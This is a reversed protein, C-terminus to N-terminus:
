KVVSSVGNRAVREGAPGRTQTRDPPASKSQCLWSLTAVRIRMGRVFRKGGDTCTAWSSPLAVFVIIFEVSDGISLTRGAATAIIARVNRDSLWRPAWCDDGFANGCLTSLSRLPM